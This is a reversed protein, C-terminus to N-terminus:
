KIKQKNQIIKIVKSVLEDTGLETKLLYYDVGAKEGTQRSDEDALNTFVFIKINKTDNDSQLNRAVEFGDLKPLILDLIIYDPQYHRIKNMIEELSSDGSDVEVGFGEVRFKAQLAYLVNADDEIIFIKKNM